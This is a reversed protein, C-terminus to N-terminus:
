ADPEIITLLTAWTWQGIEAVVEPKTFKSLLSVGLGLSPYWM